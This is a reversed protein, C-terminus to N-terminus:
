NTDGTYDVFNPLISYVGSKGKFFAVPQGNMDFAESRVVWVEFPVGAKGISRYFCIDGVKFLRNFEAILENTTM